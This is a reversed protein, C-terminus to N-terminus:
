VQEVGKVWRGLGKAKVLDAFPVRLDPYKEEVSQIDDLYAPLIKREKDMFEREFFFSPGAIKYFAEKDIEKEAVSLHTIVSDIKTLSVGSYQFCRAKGWREDGQQMLSFLLSGKITLVWLPEAHALIRHLAGVTFPGKEIGVKIAGSPIVGVQAEGCEKLVHCIAEGIEILKETKDKSPLTETCEGILTQVFEMKKQYEKLLAAAEEVQPYIVESQAEFQEDLYQISSDTKSFQGEQFEVDMRGVLMGNRFSHFVPITPEQDTAKILEQKTMWTHSHGGLIIDVKTQPNKALEKAFERDNKIGSHSLLIVLDAYPRIEPLIQNLTQIPDKIELGKRRMPSISQWSDMGMIGVIAVYQGEIELLTYPPLCPELSGEAYINSCIADFKGQKLLNKLHPWGKDFDHNGVTVINYGALNMFKIEAEGEFQEFYATGQLFDGADLVLIPQDSFKRVQELYHIRRVVGGLEKESVFSAKSPELYSHTDGTFLITFSKKERKVFMEHEIRNRFTEKLKELSIKHIRKDSNRIHTTLQISPGISQSSPFETTFSM